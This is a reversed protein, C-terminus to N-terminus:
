YYREGDILFEYENCILSEIIAEDSTSIEYYRELERYISKCTEEYYNKIEQRIDLIVEIIREYKTLIEFELNESYSKHHYYRGEQRFRGCVDINENRILKFVRERNRKYEESDHLPTLYDIIDFNITGEFMAGDGQSYFGSFFIKEINFGTEAEYKWHSIIDDSWCDHINVEYNDQIAKKQAEKSLEEFKFVKLEVTRAM